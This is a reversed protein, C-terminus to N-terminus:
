LPSTTGERTHLVRRRGSKLPEFKRVGLHIPKIGDKKEIIDTIMKRHCSVPDREYCLLCAHMSSAIEIIEDIAAVADGGRIVNSYIRRFKEIDGARAAERGEKPDGLKQFHEYEIGASELASALANKSFGARRSQARERVDIVIDVCAVKLSAIFDELSAGEYGITSIM